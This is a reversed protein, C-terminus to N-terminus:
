HAISRQRYNQHLGFENKGEMADTKNSYWKIFARVAERNIQHKESLHDEMELISGFSEDCSFCKMQEEMLDRMEVNEIVDEVHPVTKDVCDRLEEPEEKLLKKTEISLSHFTINYHNRNLKDFELMIKQITLNLNVQQNM